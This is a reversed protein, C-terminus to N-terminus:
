SLTIAIDDAYFCTGVPANLVIGMFDLTSTGPMTPVDTVTVLQWSTSLTISKTKAVLLTSGNFERLKLTFTAGPSDARVWMSGTYTGASTTAVWNPADQMKCNAATGSGGNAVLGSWSGSHGGSVRTLTVGADSGSTNWGTTSTEFGPNGVLNQSASAVTVILDDGSQLASDDATLRLDYTGPDSFSATTSVSSADGFTVTGPGSVQSWTTTLTGPPNPLGDDTATGSLNAPNPLIVNQDPGANVVPPQNQPTPNVTVTLDDSSQLASDNATLRLVYTGPDSFSATTSLSSADGFTVTGPGSVQSWTTTLTGPPNPLGDDTATGSLSASNPLTVTQDPGANVAPPQNQGSCAVSGTRLSNTNVDEFNWGISTATGGSGAGNLTLAVVGPTKTKTWAIRSDTLKGSTSHGGSGVIMEVMHAGATGAAFNADLPKYEVMSHANGGLVLDAGNNALLSWMDVESSKITSGSLAPTHWYAVVCAPVGPATLANHVFTYEPSGARMSQSSDLDFFMVGGFTFSTYLPRGHWYDIWATKNPYEHNGITPQTVSATAGWLTGGGPVDMGSVGYHNLFETFTGTEYVDGLYMFLSPNAAAVESAVANSTVENSAGDGVAMVTPDQSGNWAGPLFNAWDNPSHQFDSANGNALTVPVTAPNTSTSNYQLQLTGSADLYKQTPWVFSYDNTSPSPAYEQILQVAPKGSPIWTAIVVGNNPSNTVSVPTNGSLATDPVTVCITHGNSTVCNSAAQATAPTVLITAIVLPAVSLRLARQMSLKLTATRGRHFTPRARVPAGRM